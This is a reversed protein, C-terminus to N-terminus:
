FRAFCYSHWVGMYFKRLTRTGFHYGLAYLQRGVGLDEWSLCRGVSQFHLLHKPQPVPQHIMPQPLLDPWLVDALTCLGPLVMQPAGDPSSWKPVLLDLAELPSQVLPMLQCLDLSVAQVSLSPKQAM